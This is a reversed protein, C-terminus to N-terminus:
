EGEEKQWCSFCVTLIKESNTPVIIDGGCRACPIPLIKFEFPDGLCHAETKM